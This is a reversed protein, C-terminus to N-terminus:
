GAGTRASPARDPLAYEPERHSPSAAQPEPAAM